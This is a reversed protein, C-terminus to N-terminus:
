DRYTIRASSPFAGVDVKTRRSLTVSTLSSCGDFAFNGISTVSSPITVSNLNSCYQFAYEGISVVSSPIVYAGQNRVAPYRILTQINKDFLVGDISAYAPNRDDVTINTLSAGSFAFNGISTVSLPITVSTLSTGSFAFNGISTVSSPITVSTLNICSEFAREGISRVSSPITISTLSRCNSFASVGISTVSSPITVSILSTCSAFAGDGISTVSSPIVYTTQKRVAPYQILTQINKDFLVGDISAYAPNRNDVTISPSGYRGSFAGNGISTVSSPITVSTLSRCDSFAGEEISRVSSSITVSTLSTCRSFAYKGISTVSSPITISTLSTCGSFAGFGISTVSSPITVSTLSRCGDFAREGISTVSSPITVSTLSTCDSFAGFGISTVSSPITISTLSTCSAFAWKGISTVSSPLTVSTLSECNYFANDGISTVSSPLTVSTLSSCGGFAGDGISRVSSPITVSRLSRCGRFAGNGISTVSSPITVSTLSTCSEFADEGISTVPMGAIRGPINLIVDDGTYGTITITKGDIIESKLGAPIPQDAAGAPAPRQGTLLFTVQPDNININLSSSGERVASEVNIAMVRFRYVNGADALSGTIVYQAGLQKGVRRVEDDSVDGSMQINLEKRIADLYQREIVQINKGASLATALEDIIYDSCAQKTSAFTLVAAKAGKPLGAEIAKTSAQVAQELSVNQAFLGTGALLLVAFLRLKTM